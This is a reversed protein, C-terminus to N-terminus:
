IVNGMKRDTYPTAKLNGYRVSNEGAPNIFKIVAVYGIRTYGDKHECMVTKVGAMCEGERLEEDLELILPIM